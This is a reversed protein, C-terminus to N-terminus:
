EEWTLEVVAIREKTTDQREDAVAKSPHIVNGNPLKLSPWATLNSRYINVWGTKMTGAMFLDRSSDNVAGYNLFRGDKTYTDVEDGASYAIVSYKEAEPFFALQKVAKGDRTVVPKGALADQLNFPKM